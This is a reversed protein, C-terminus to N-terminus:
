RLTADLATVVREVDDTSMGAFMPLSLERAYFSDMGPHQAPAGYLERYYPQSDVPIYHVQSGVQHTKLRTMVDARSVGVGAFDILVPLLHYASEREPRTAQVTARSGLRAPILTRYAAALERRRALWGPQKRLQSLGLACQIDTIRGNWGLSQVEHYWPGPSPQKFSDREVGHHRLRDITRKLSADRVAIAGGEGTTIHKVPHFSFTTAESYQGSGIPAGRYTAGLAHAADEVVWLKHRDAIGRLGALDVPLGGFHVPVIGKTRPTILTEVTTLDMNGTDPEVDSFRVNAGLARAANATAAFTNPTTIIEDDTGLGLAAYALQLAITGNAVASIYPAGSYSALAAEFEPVRPGQTILPSRLAEVVAAIDDDEILQQGYPLFRPKNPM